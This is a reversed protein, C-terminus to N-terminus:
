CSCPLSSSSRERVGVGRLGNMGTRCCELVEGGGDGDGTKLWGCRTVRDCADSDFADLELALVDEADERGSSGEDACLTGESENWGEDGVSYRLGASALDVATGLVVAGLIRARTVGAALGRRLARGPVSNASTGAGRPAPLGVFRVIGCGRGSGRM